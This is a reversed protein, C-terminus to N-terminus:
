SREICRALHASGDTDSEQAGEDGAPCLEDSAETDGHRDGSPREDECRHEGCGEDVSDM